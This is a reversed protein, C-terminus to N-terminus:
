TSQDTRNKGRIKDLAQGRSTQSLLDLLKQACDTTSFTATDLELDYCGEANKHVSTFQEEIGKIAKPNNEEGERMRTLLVELPCFLGVFYANLDEFHDLLHNKELPEVTLTDLILDHGELVLARSTAYLASAWNLTPWVERSIDALAPVMIHCYFSDMSLILTTVPLTKQLEAALSSKGARSPGNLIILRGPKAGQPSIKM